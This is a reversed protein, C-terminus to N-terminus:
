GQPLLSVMEALLKEIDVPKTLLPIALRKAQRSIKGDTDGTILVAPVARGALRRLRAIVDVGNDQRLSYDCVIFDPCVDNVAAEAQTRDSAVAIDHGLGTLAARLSDRVLFDDDVVLIRRSAPLQRKEGRPCTPSPSASGAPAIIAFTSGRGPASRLVCDHGLTASLRRVISLGLGIGREGSGNTLKEVQYFESFINEQESAHIGPGSDRVELRWGKGCRRCALLVLGRETHQIANSILNSLIRRLMEVGTYM